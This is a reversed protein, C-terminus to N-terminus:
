WFLSFYPGTIPKKKFIIKLNIYRLTWLQRFDLMGAVLLTGTYLLIIYKEFFRIGTCMRLSAFSCYIGVQPYSDVHTILWFFYNIKLIYSMKVWALFYTFLYILLNLPPKKSFLSVRVDCVRLAKGAPLKLSKQLRPPTLFFIREFDVLLINKWTKSSGRGLFFSLKHVPECM